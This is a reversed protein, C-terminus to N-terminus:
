LKKPALSDFSILNLSYAHALGILECSRLHDPWDTRRQIWRLVRPNKKDPKLLKGVLQRHYEECDVEKSITWKFATKGLRLNELADEFLDSKYELMEMQIQKAMDTGAYPDHGAQLRCKDYKIGGDKNEIRFEKRNGFAMSPMWGCWMPLSDQVAPMIQGRTPIQINACNQKVEATNHRADIVVAIPDIGHKIQLEDIEHWQMLSGFEIGHASDIGNWARIVYWFYPAKEQHDISLIKVWEGTVELKDALIGSRDISVSQNADPEALDSNIFGKVGDVSYKATLFKKAMAGVNCEPSLSYMSPIHWGIFGPVGKATARFQGHRVMEYKHADTIKGECYPCVYHATQAVKDLDWVDNVKASDDWKVYAEYGKEEFVSYRKSWAFVLWGKEFPTEMKSGNAMQLAPANGKSASKEYAEKNCHPCPMFYRRQDTKKFEAWIGTKDLTPTSQKYRRSEVVSKTREDALIVPNAEKSTETQPPFKDIEDQWVVDCRNEALQSASNSGTVDIISGNVQMQGSSFEHRFAGSPIKEAICKTARMAKQLRTKSFSKAGAPGVGGTPKVILARMPETAVRCCCGAISGVTKGIGTGAVTIFDTGGKLSEPLPGWADVMERLFERGRM